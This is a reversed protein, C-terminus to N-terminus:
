RCSINVSDSAYYGYGAVKNHAMSPEDRQYDMHATFSGGSPCCATFMGSAEKGPLLQVKASGLPTLSVGNFSARITGNAVEATNNVVNYKINFTREPQSCQKQIVTIPADIHLVIRRQEGVSRPPVHTGPLAPQVHPTPPPPSDQSHALSGTIAWFMSSLAVAILSVYLPVRIEHSRM